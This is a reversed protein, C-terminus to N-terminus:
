SPDALSELDSASEMEHHVKQSLPNRHIVVSTNRHEDHLNEGHSIRGVKSPFDPCQLVPKQADTRVGFSIRLSFCTSMGWASPSCASLSCALCGRWDVRATHGHLLGVSEVRPTHRFCANQSSARPIDSVLCGMEVRVTHRFGVM